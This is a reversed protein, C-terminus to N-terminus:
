QQQQQQQKRPSSLEEADRQLSALSLDARPSISGEVAVLLGSDGVLSAADASLELLDHAEPDAASLISLQASLHASLETLEVPPSPPPRTPPPPPPSEVLSM